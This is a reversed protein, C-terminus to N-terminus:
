CIFFHLNRFFTLHNQLVGFAFLEGNKFDPLFPPIDDIVWAPERLFGESEAEQADRLLRAVEERLAADHPFVEDLYKDRESTERDLAASFAANIETWRESNM